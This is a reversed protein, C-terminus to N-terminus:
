RIIKADPDLDREDRFGIWEKTDTELIARPIRPKNLSGCKQYRYKFIKGLYKEQNDWIDQRLVKTLGKGTGCKFEVGTYIDVCLFKGLTGTLKMGDKKSCRKSNGFADKEQKNTNTKGEVYGIIRAESDVMFKIKLIVGQKWTTKKCLYPGNPDRLVLGERKEDECMKEYADLEERSNIVTRPLISIYQKAESSANDYWEEIAKMRETYPISLGMGLNPVYDFLYFIFNPTGEETMVDSTVNNFESSTVIEGDAGIPLIRELITRIHHNPIPKFSKSLVREDPRICRIGDMKPTAIMPFSLANKDECLAASMPRTIM